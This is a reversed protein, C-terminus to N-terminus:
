SRIQQKRVRMIRLGKLIFFLMDPRFPIVKEGPCMPKECSPCDFNLVGFAAITSDVIYKKVAEIFAKRENDKSSMLELINEIESRTELLAITGRSISKIYPTYERMISIDIYENLLAEVRKEDIDQPAVKNILEYISNIWKENTSLADGVCPTKFTFTIRKDHGVNDLFGDDAEDSNNIVFETAKSVVGMQQYAMIEEVSRKKTRDGMFTIQESTLRKVDTLYMRSLDAVARETHICEVINGIHPVAIPFGNPYVVAALAGFAPLLDTVLMVKSLVEYNYDKLSCDYLNKVFFEFLIRQITAGSNGFSFGNTFRATLMRENSLADDLNLLSLDGIPKLKIWLGSHWLPVEIYSGMDLAGAIASVGREGTLPGEGERPKSGIKRLGLEGGNYPVRQHWEGNDRKFIDEFIDDSFTILKANSVATRYDNVNPAISLDVNPLESIIEDFKKRTYLPYGVLADIKLKALKDKDGGIMPLPFNYTYNVVVEDKAQEM